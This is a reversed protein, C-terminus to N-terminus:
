PKLRFYAYSESFSIPVQTSGNTSTPTFRFPLWEHFDRTMEIPVIQIPGEIIISAGARSAIDISKIRPLDGTLNQLLVPRDLPSRPNGIFDPRSDGTLDGTSKVVVAESLGTPTIPRFSSTSIVDASPQNFVFRGGVFDVFGDGNFDAFVPRPKGPINPFDIQVFRAPDLPQGLISRNWLISLNPDGGLIDLRGDGEVDVLAVDEGLFPLQVVQFSNSSLAGGLFSYITASFFNPKSIIEIHGDGNLDGFALGFGQPALLVVKLDNTTFTGPISNNQLVRLGGPGRGFLDPRGDEDVDCVMLESFGQELIIPPDFSQSSFSVGDYKNLFIATKDRSYQIIDLQGNGDLDAMLLPNGPRVLGSLYIAQDVENTEFLGKNRAYITSIALKPLGTTNTLVLDLTGNGDFDGLAAVFLNQPVPLPRVVFSINTIPKTASLASPLFYQGSWAVLGGAAVTLPGYQAGAPAEVKIEEATAAIVRGKASGFFVHNEAPNALFNQGSVTIITESRAALPAIATIKPPAQAFIINTVLLVPWLGIPNMLTSNSCQKHWHNIVEHRTTPLFDTGAGTIMAEGLLPFLTEGSAM